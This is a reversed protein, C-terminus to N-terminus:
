PSDSRVATRSLRSQIGIQAYHRADPLVFIAGSGRFGQARLSPRLAQRLMEDFVEQASAMRRMNGAVPAVRGLRILAFQGVLDSPTAPAAGQGRVDTM